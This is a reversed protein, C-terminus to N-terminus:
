NNNPLPLDVAVKYIKQVGQAIEGYLAVEPLYVKTVDELNVISNNKIYM